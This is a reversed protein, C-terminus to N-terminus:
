NYRGKVCKYQDVRYVNGDKDVIWYYQSNQTSIRGTKTEFHSTCTVVGPETKSSTCGLTVFMIIILIIIRVINHIKKKQEGSDERGFSLYTDDSKRRGTEISM